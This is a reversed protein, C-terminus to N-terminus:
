SSASSYRKIAFNWFQIALFFLTGSFIFAYIVLYWSFHGILVSVPVYATFAIPIASLAVIKLPRSFVDIPYRGAAMITALMDNVNDIRYYWFGFTNVILTLSYNIIIAVIFLLIAILWNGWTFYLNFKILVVVLLALEMFVRYLARILFFKTSVAFLPNIPKTLHLDLRGDTIADPISPLNGGFFLTMIEDAIMWFLTMLYISGKSWGAIENTRSFLIDISLFLTLIWLFNFLMRLWTDKRYQAEYSVANEVFIKFVRLYKRM